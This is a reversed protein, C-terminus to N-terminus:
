PLPAGDDDTPAPLLVFRLGLLRDPEVRVLRHQPLFGPHEAKLVYEGPRVNVFFFSGDLGSFAVRPPQDTTNARPALTVRARPLPHVASNGPDAALVEGDIVGTAPIPLMREFVVSRDPPLVPRPLRVVHFPNTIVDLMGPRPDDFITVRVLPQSANVDVIAINPGGGSTQLGQIAAIVVDRRFDVPPPPLNAGTHRHWFLRWALPDRIVLTAGAFDPHNYGYQSMSGKAITIPTTVATPDALADSDGTGPQVDAFDTPNLIDTPASTAVPESPMAVPLAASALGAISCAVVLAFMRKM